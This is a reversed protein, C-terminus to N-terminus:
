ESKGQRPKDDDLLKDLDLPKDLDLAKNPSDGSKKDAPKGESKEGDAEPKPDDEKDPRSQLIKAVMNRTLEALEDQEVALQELETAAAPSLNGEKDRLGHLLQTRELYEEQLLKLMKLQAIQPLSDGPPGAQEAKPQEDDPPQKPPMPPQEAKAGDPKDDQKLVALLSEIKKAADRELTLTSADTQKEGLRDAALKLSRSTRRLVLSFVEAVTLSKEMREAETQLARETEALDRLTKLQGRSLSGQALREAELRETETIVAQQRALLGKLEDEIKELQVTAGKEAAVDEILKMTTKCNACGTGLVKIEM